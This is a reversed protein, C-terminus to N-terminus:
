QNSRAIRFGIGKDRSAPCFYGRCSSRVSRYSDSWSGGRIVRGPGWSAGLPNNQAGAYYDGLWDWCWEWVNGSMDYIGLSNPAKSGVPHSGSRGNRFYWAVANIDNSGSYLFTEYDTNGGKAAYEWEAETPLRYGDAETDIKVIWRLHDLSNVNSQDIKTKDIIYVPLLNELESLKNCYEIAEYWSVSDVPHNDKKLLSPNAGMVEQYEKQTVEYKGIYFSNVTVRHSIENDYRGRETTPSGMVYIEGKVFIMNGSTDADTSVPQSGLYVTLLFFIIVFLKKM